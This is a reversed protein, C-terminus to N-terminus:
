AYSEVATVVQLLQRALKQHRRRCEELRQLSQAQLHDKLNGFGQRLNELDQSCQEIAQQQMIIRNELAPLGVLPAPCCCRPDPNNQVAQAWKAYDVHYAPNFQGSNAQQLLQPNDTFSYSYAVFGHQM